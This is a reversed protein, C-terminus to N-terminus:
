HFYFGFLALIIAVIGSSFIATVSIITTLIYAKTPMHKLTEQIRAVKVKLDDVTESIGNVKEELSDLRKELQDLRFEILLKWSGNRTSGGVEEPDSTSESKLAAM